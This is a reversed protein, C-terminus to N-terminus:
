QFSLGRLRAFKIHGLVPSCLPWSTPTPLYPLLAPPPYLPIEPYCKFHLHCFYRIFISFSFLFNNRIFDVFDYIIIYHKEFDIIFNSFKIKDCFQGLYVNEFYSSLCDPFCTLLTLAHFMMITNLCTESFGLVCQTSNGSSSQM